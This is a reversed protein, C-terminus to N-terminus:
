SSTTELGNRMGSSIGLIWSNTEFLLAALALDVACFLLITTVVAAELEVDDDFDYNYRMNDSM